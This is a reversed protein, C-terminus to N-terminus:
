WHYKSEADDKLDQIMNEIEYESLPTLTKLHSYKVIPEIFQSKSQNSVLLPKTIFTPQIGLKKFAQNIDKEVSKQSNHYTRPIVNKQSLKM